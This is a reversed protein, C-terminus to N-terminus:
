PRSARRVAAIEAPTAKVHDSCSGMPEEPMVADLASGLDALQRSSLRALFHERVGRVHTPAAKELRAWGDDTLIAFSGRRDSGCKERRVWGRRVLTDLRRTLGSPSLHLLGALDSMRMARNPAESLGVLVEYEALSMDHEAQLEADLSAMLSGTAVILTRWVQQEAESLWPAEGDTAV